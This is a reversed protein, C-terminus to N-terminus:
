SDKSDGKTPYKWRIEIETYIILWIILLIYIYIFMCADPGICNTKKKKFSKIANM